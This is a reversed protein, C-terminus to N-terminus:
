CSAPRRDHRWRSPSSSASACAAPSSTRIVTWGRRLSRSAVDALMAICRERRERPGLSTHLTLMEELQQGITYLPNLATMPEQFIM